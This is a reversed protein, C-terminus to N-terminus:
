ARESAKVRRIGMVGLFYASIAAAESALISIARSPNPARPRCRRSQRPRRSVHAAPLRAAEGRAGLGLGSGIRPEPTQEFGRGRDDVAELRPVIERRDEDALVDRAQEAILGGLIEAIRIEPTIMDMGLIEGADLRLDALEELGALLREFVREPALVASIAPHIVLLMEDAVRGALRRFNDAGPAM